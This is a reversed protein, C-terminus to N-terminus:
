TCTFHLFPMQNCAQYTSPSARLTRKEADTLLIFKAQVLFAHTKTVIIKRPRRTNESLTESCREPQAFNTKSAPLPYLFISALIERADNKWLYGANKWCVCLTILRCNKCLLYKNSIPQHSNALVCLTLSLHQCFFHDFEFFFAFREHSCM